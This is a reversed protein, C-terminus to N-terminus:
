LGVEQKRIWHQLQSLKQQVIQLQPDVTHPDGLGMSAAYADRLRMLGDRNYNSSLPANQDWNLWCLNGFSFCNFNWPYIM